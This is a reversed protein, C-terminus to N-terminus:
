KNIEVPTLLLLLASSPNLAGVSLQSFSETSPHGVGATGFAGRSCFWIVQKNACAAGSDVTQPPTVALTLLLARWISWAALCNDISEM